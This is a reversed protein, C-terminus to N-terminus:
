LAREFRRRIEEPLPISRGQEDVAVAVIVGRVCSVGDANVVEYGYTVSTRGVKEVRATCEIADQFGLTGPFDAEVHIRPFGAMGFDSPRKGDLLERMLGEEAREFYRLGATYHIRGSADTDVFSVYLRETHSIM